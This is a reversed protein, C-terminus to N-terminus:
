LKMISHRKGLKVPTRPTPACCPIRTSQQLSVVLDTAIEDLAHTQAGAGVWFFLSCKVYEIYSLADFLSRMLYAYTIDISM